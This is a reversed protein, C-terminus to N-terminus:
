SIGANLGSSYFCLESFLPPESMPLAGIV